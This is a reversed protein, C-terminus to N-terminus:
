NDSFNPFCGFGAFGARRLRASGHLPRGAAGPADGRRPSPAFRSLPYKM